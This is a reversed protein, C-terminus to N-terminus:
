VHDVGEYSVWYPRMIYPGIKPGIKGKRAASKPGVHARTLATGRASRLGAVQAPHWMGVYMM